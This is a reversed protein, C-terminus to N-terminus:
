YTIELLTEAVGRLKEASLESLRIALELYPRNVPKCVFQQIEPTLELFRQISGQQNRWRGIPGHQDYFREIAVDLTQSIVELEPLPISEEGMEYRKLQEESIGTRDTMEKYSFNANNRAMRLNAGIMRNRLAQLREKEVLTQPIEAESLSKKGWFHELPVNLFLALIEIQPLPPATLGKEYAQYHEVSIGIAQACEEATRRQSVRADMMLLGLKKARIQIMQRKTSM